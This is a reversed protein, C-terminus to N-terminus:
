QCYSFIKVRGWADFLGPVTEYNKIEEPDIWKFETHEWDIKIKNIGTLSFRFPHVVWQKSRNKDIVTLIKGEKILQINEETLELEEKIEQIAQVLPTNNKEIYGSIGAWKGTYSGVKQSRRLFMVKKKHELFCTVVHTEEM